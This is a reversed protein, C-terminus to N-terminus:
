TEAGEAFRRLSVKVGQVGEVREALLQVERESPRVKKLLLGNGAVEGLIEVKGDDATVNFSIERSGPSAALALKVRCALAFDKLRDKVVNTSKYPPLQAVATVIACASDISIDALNIVLDYNVPDRWDVGYVFKTWRIREQDVNRIYDRAATYALGQCGMVARIRMAMPAILRVKLVAPLGKLLLHGAHGHYVLEGSTCADALASQVAVLYLRRDATLREWVGASKEIKGLMTEEPVGIKGAAQVVVERSLCPYCLRRALCQAFETGGSMSGRSVTVIAVVEGKAVAATREDAM